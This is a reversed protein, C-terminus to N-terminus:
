KVLASFGISVYFPPNHVKILNTNFFGLFSQLKIRVERNTSRLIQHDLTMIEICVPILLSTNPRSIFVVDLTQHIFVKLSFRFSQLRLSACVVLDLRHPRKPGAAPSPEPLKESM